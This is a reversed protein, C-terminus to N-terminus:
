KRSKRSLLKRAGPRAAQVASAADLTPRLTKLAGTLSRTRDEQLAECIESLPVDHSRAIVVALALDQVRSFSRPLDEIELDGDLLPELATKLAPHQDIQAVTISRRSARPERAGGSRARERRSSRTAGESKLTVSGASASWAGLPGSTLSRVRVEVNMSPERSLAVVPVVLKVRTASIEAKERPVELARVLAQGDFFGVQFARVVFSGDAARAQIEGSAEFELTFTERPTNPQSARAQAEQRASQSASAPSDFGTCGPAMLSSLAFGCAVTRWSRM